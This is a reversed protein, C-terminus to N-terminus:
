YCGKWSQCKRGGTTQGQAQTELKNAIAMGAADDSASNIRKGSAITGYDIKSGVGTINM